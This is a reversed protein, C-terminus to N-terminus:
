QCILTEHIVEWYDKPVRKYASKSFERLTKGNWWFLQVNEIYNHPIGVCPEAPMVVGRAMFHWVHGSCSEFEMDAEVQHTM